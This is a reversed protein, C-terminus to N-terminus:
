DFDLNLQAKKIASNRVTGGKYPSEQSDTDQRMATLMSYENDKETSNQKELEKEGFQAFFEGLSLYSAGILVAVKGNMIKMQCKKTGIVYNHRKVRNIYINQLINQLNNEDDNATDNVFIALQEDIDDGEVEHYYTKLDKLSIAKLLKLEKKTEKMNFDLDKVSSVILNFEETNQTLFELYESFSTLYDDSTEQLELFTNLGKSEELKSLMEEVKISLKETIELFKQEFDPLKERDEKSLKEDKKKLVLEQGEEAELQIGKAWSIKAHCFESFM